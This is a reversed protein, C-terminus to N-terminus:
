FQVKSKPKPAAPLSLSLNNITSGAQRLARGTGEAASGVLRLGDGGSTVVGAAGDAASRLAGAGGAMAQTAGQVVKVAAGVRSGAEEVGGVGLSATDMMNNM